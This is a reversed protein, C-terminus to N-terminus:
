MSCLKLQSQQAHYNEVLFAFDDDDADNDNLIDDDDFYYHYHHGDDGKTHSLGGGSHGSQPVSDHRVDAVDSAGCVDRARLHKGAFIDQVMQLLLKFQIFTALM